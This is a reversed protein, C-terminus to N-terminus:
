FDLDEEYLLYKSKTVQFKIDAENKYEKEGALFDIVYQASEDDLKVEYKFPVYTGDVKTIVTQLGLGGFEKGSGLDHYILARVEPPSVTYSKRDKYSDDVFYVRRANKVGGDDSKYKIYRFVLKADKGNAKIDKVDIIDHGKFYNIGLPPNDQKRQPSELPAVELANTPVQALIETLQKSDIPMAQIQQKGNAMPAMALMVIVPVKALTNSSNRQMPNEVYRNDSDKKRSTFATQKSYVNVSSVPLIAM